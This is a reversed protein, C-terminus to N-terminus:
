GRTLELCHSETLPVCLDRPCVCHCWESYVQCRPGQMLCLETARTWNEAWQHHTQWSGGCGSAGNLHWFSGVCGLLVSIFYYDWQLWSPHKTSKAWCEIWMVDAVHFFCKWFKLLNRQDQLGSLQKYQIYHHNHCKNIEESLSLNDIHRFQSFFLFMAPTKGKQKWTSTSTIWVTITNFFDFMGQYYPSSDDAMIYKIWSCEYLFFFIM